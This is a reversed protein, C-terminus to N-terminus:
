QLGEPVACFPEGVFNRPATLCFLRCFITVYGESAYIKGLGSLLSVRLPQRVFIELVTLCSIDSPFKQGQAVWGRMWVNEIGSILLLSLPEGVAIKTVTPCSCNSAFVQYERGRRDFFKESGSIKRFVVSFPEEVFHKPVRLCFKRHFITVYGESTYFNELGSILSM